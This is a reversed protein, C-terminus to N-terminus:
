EEGYLESSIEKAGKKTNIGLETIQLDLSKNKGNELSEYQSASSVEVMAQIMMKSGVKPLEKLGLKELSKQDLCIRLGYPYKMESLESEEKEKENSMSVMKM